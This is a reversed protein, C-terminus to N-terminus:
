VAPAGQEPGQEPKLQALMSEIAQLREMQRRRERQEEQWAAREAQWDAEHRTLQSQLADREAILEAHRRRLTENDLQLAPVEQALATVKDHERRLTRLAKDSQGFQETLRVNDRNLQLLEQNKSALLDQVQRLEVQLTQVQHEHRQQEQERQEKASRRFHELAERAHQHKEELSRVQEEWAQVQTTLGAVRETLAIGQARAEQLTAATAAHAHREDQLTVETRQLQNSLARNEKAQEAAAAANTALATDCAGQVEVIRAEAEEKLQAALQAVLHQLADSIPAGRGRETGEEAELEKLYRHITSKSGTHGLAARVADISPRLGQAVLSDRAKKVETKYLGARAM